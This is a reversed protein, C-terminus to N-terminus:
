ASSPGVKDLAADLAASLGVLGRLGEVLVPQWTPDRDRNAIWLTGHKALLEEGVAELLDIAEGGIITVGTLDVFIQCVGRELGQLCALRVDLAAAADLSHSPVDIRYADRLERVHVASSRDRSAPKATSAEETEHDDHM